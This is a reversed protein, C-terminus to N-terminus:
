KKIKIARICIFFFESFIEVVEETIKRSVLNESITEPICYYRKSIKDKSVVKLKVLFELKRVCTARPIKTVESISTASISASIFNKLLSPNDYIDKHTLNKKKARSSFLHAVQLFIIILEQDKFQKSWLRLYKLQTGLFHFWYFSFREKIEHVLQERPISLNIKECIYSILKCVDSIEKEIFLNYSQKYLENPLWGINKNKKSLVKQKILQLIKRRITEKPLLTEEAIRILSKQQPETVNHNEWFKEYSINFNLDYEKKRLIDQHTQKAFYLVLNGNEVSQYRSYLNTLLKSQFELFLYQYDIYNDLIKEKIIKTSLPGM